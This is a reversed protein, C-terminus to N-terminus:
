FRKKYTHCYPQSNKKNYYDQHYEEARWFDRAKELRTAIDYGKSELISILKQAIEKQEENMYFIVSRYQEGIDPGQRNVQTPNHIEFFLKTLEEYTVKNPDYYIRVAEVHKTKGSCVDEYTPNELQGGTYGSEVYIVGDLKNFHYEVGWFCGGAFIAPETKVFNMSISNVCHRVNKETYHEGTFI